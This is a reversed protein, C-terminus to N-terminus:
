PDPTVQRPMDKASGYLLQNLHAPSAEVVELWWDSGRLNWRQIVRTPFRGLAHRLVCDVVVLASSGSPALDARVLRWSHIPLLTRSQFGTRADPEVLAAAREPDQDEVAQWFAELRETLSATPTGAAGAPLTLIWCLALPLRRRRDPRLSRSEEM